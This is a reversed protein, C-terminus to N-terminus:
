LFIHFKREGYNKRKGKEESMREKKEIMKEKRGM